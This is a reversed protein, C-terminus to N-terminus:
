GPDPPRQFVNEGGARLRAMVVAGEDEGGGRLDGEGTAPHSANKPPPARRIDPPQTERPSPPAASSRPRVLEVLQAVQAEEPIRFAELAMHIGMAGDKCRFEVSNIPRAERANEVIKADSLPRRGVTAAIKMLTSAAGPVARLTTVSRARARCRGERRGAGCPGPRAHDAAIGIQAEAGLKKKEWPAGGQLITRM